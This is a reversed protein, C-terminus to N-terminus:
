RRRKCELEAQDPWILESGPCTSGVCILVYARDGAALTVGTSLKHAPDFGRVEYRGPPLGRTHFGGHADTAAEVHTQQKVNDIRQVVVSLGSVPASNDGLALAEVAAATGESKCNELAHVSITGREVAHPDQQAAQTVLASLEDHAPRTACSALVLPVVLRRM